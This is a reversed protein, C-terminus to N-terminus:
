IALRTRVAALRRIVDNRAACDGYGTRIMTIALALAENQANKGTIPERHEGYYAQRFLDHTMEADTPYEMQIWDDLTSRVRSISRRGVGDLGTALGALIPGVQLHLELPM